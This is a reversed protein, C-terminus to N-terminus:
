PTTFAQKSGLIQVSAHFWRRYQKYSDVSGMLFQIGTMCLWLPFSKLSNKHESPTLNPKNNWEASNTYHLHYNNHKVVM